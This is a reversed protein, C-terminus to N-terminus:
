GTECYARSRAIVPLDVPSELEEVVGEVQLSAVLVQVGTVVRVPVHFIDRQWATSFPSALM